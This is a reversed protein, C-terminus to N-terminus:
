TRVPIPPYDAPLVDPLYHQVSQDLDVRGEAALQLVVTAIFAKTVSGLRFRGDAPVPQSTTIDAVGYTGTWHGAPGSIRALVGTVRNPASSIANQLAQPDLAPLSDDARHVAAAPHPAPTAMAPAVAVMAAAATCSLVAWTRKHLIM